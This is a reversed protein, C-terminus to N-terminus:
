GDCLMSMRAASPLRITLREMERPEFKELGGQYTRGSGRYTERLDNLMAVLESLQEGGLPVIPYLGHIVNLMLLGDPNLAFAPAQRAMYTAVIPPPEMAQPKWWPMRHSAIYGRHLGRAEGAAIYSNLAEQSREDLDEPPYLMVLRDNSDLVVADSVFLEQAASLVPRVSRELGLGRARERTMVFFDNAGTVIGRHVRAISGLPLADPEAVHRYHNRAIKGWSPALQLDAHPIKRGGVGLQILTKVSPANKFRVHKAEGGARACVIVATSAADSFAAAQADLLHVEEARLGNLLLQRLGRGYNVDLWEAGMIFCLVDGEEALSAAATVFQAHLGSLASWSIGLESALAAGHRKQAPAMSHHRVYPPNGVFARKGSAPPLALTTFDTNLVTLNRVGKVAATARLMLCAVPDLDVAIVSKVSTLRTAALAFRGSGSGCDVVQEQAQAAVWTMMADVIPLATYFAGTVRRQAAPRGECFTEGLPDTGQRIARRVRAIARRTPSGPAAGAREVLSREQASLEGGCQAAGLSLALSVLELEAM